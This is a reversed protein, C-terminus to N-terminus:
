ILQIILQYLLVKLIKKLLWFPSLSDKDILSIIIAVVYLIIAIVLSLYQIIFSLTRQKLNLKLKPKRKNKKYYNELEIKKLINLLKM